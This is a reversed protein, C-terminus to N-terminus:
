AASPKSRAIASREKTGSACTTRLPLVPATIAVESTSTATYNFTQFMWGSFGQSPLDYATTSQTQDGLSVSWYQITDGTWNFQQSAAWDFSVTYQQGPTLGNITQQIPGTEYDGDAGIFNGGDPSTAPIADLGGNNLGWLALQGYQNGTTGTTDATGPAFLFNYGTSTWDTLTTIQGGGATGFQGTLCGATAVFCSTSEFSGNTVLDPGINARASVAFALLGLASGAKRMASSLKTYKETQLDM